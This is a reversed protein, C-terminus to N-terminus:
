LKNFNFIRNDQGGYKRYVDDWFAIRDYDPNVGTTLEEDIELYHLKDAEVPKWEVNILSDKERTPSGYKAFNTWLKTIKKVTKGEVSDFPIYTPTISSKFIYGLEDVHSAGLNIQFCKYSNISSM